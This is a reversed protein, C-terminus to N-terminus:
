DTGDPSEPGAVGGEGAARGPPAQPRPPRAREGARYRRMYERRREREAAARALARLAEEPAVAAAACLRLAADAPLGLGALGAPGLRAV